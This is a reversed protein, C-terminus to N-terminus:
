FSGGLTMGAFQATIVPGGRVATSSKTRPALAFLVIGGAVLLAGGIAATIVIPQEKKGDAENDNYADRLDERTRVNKGCTSNPDTVAANSPCGQAAADADAFKGHLDTEESRYLVFSVVSYGIAIAGVGVMAVAVYHMTGWGGPQADAPTATSASASAPTAVDDAKGGFVFKVERAKANEKAVIKQSGTLGDPRDVRVTRSGPDVSIPRGDIRDAVPRGDVFVKADAIDTGSSDRVDVVITPTAALVESAWQACDARVVQPCETASCAMLKERADILKGAARLRQGDEALTTCAKVSTPTTQASAEGLPNTLAVVMWAASIVLPARRALMRAISVSDHADLICRRLRTM